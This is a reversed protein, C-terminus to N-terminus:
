RSVGAGALDPDSQFHKRGYDGVRTVSTTTNDFLLLSNVPTQNDICVDRVEFSFGRSNSTFLTWGTKPLKSM